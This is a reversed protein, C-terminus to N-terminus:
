LYRIQHLPDLFFGRGFGRLVRRVAVAAPLAAAAAVAVVVLQSTNWVWSGVRVRGPPFYGTLPLGESQNHM